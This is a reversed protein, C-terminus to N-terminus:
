LCGASHLLLFGSKRCGDLSPLCLFVTAESSFFFLGEFLIILLENQKEVACTILGERGAGLADLLVPLVEEEVSEEAGHDEATNHNVVLRIGVDVGPSVSLSLGPHLSAALSDLVLLLVLLARRFICRYV